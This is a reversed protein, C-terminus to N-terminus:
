RRCELPPPGIDALETKKKLRGFAGFGAGRPTVIEFRRITTGSPWDIYPTAIKPWWTVNLWRSIPPEGFSSTVILPRPLPFEYAPSTEIRSEIKPPAVRFAIEAVATIPSRM